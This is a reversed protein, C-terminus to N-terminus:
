APFRQQFYGDTTDTYYYFVYDMEIEPKFRIYSNYRAIDTMVKAPTINYVSGFLNVYTTIKLGGGLKSVIDQSAQTLTNSKTHTSDYYLRLMPRSTVYGLLMAIVFVGLFRGVKSLLSRRERIFQLKLVAFGLFMTTMIVFYLFDESCIMGNIFTGARRDLALWYTIERM